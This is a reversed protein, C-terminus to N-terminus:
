KCNHKTPDKACDVCVPEYCKECQGYDENASSLCPEQCKHCNEIEYGKEYLKEEMLNNRRVEKETVIVYGSIKLKGSVMDAIFQETTINM